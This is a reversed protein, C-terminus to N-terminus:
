PLNKNIIAITAKILEELIIFRDIMTYTSNWRTSVNHILKQVNRGSNLQYKKLKEAATTSKKFYNVIKRVNELLLNIADNNLSSKVILNLSHGFCSVHKWRCYKLIATKMNSANDTTAFDVKNFIEWEKCIIKLEDSINQGTHSDTMQVCILLISELKFNNIFHATVAIFSETNLSTWTDTTISVKTSNELKEKCTHKAEEFRAPISSHSIFKRNPFEYSPNLAHVFEKFRIDEVIKFPELDKIFLCLLKEDINKRNAATMKRPLFPTIRQQTSITVRNVTHASTDQFTSLPLPLVNSPGPQSNATHGSSDQITPLIIINSPGAQPVESSDPDTASQSSQPQTKQRWALSITPHVSCLYKKLNTTTTKYSLKKKCIKCTAYGTNSVPVFFNWVDSGRISM